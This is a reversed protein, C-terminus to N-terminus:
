IRLTIVLIFFTLNFFCDSALLYFYTLYIFRPPTFQRDSGYHYFTTLERRLSTLIFPLVVTMYKDFPLIRM